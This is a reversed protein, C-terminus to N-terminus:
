FCCVHPYGHGLPNLKIKHFNDKRKQTLLIMDLLECLNTNRRFCSVTVNTVNEIQRNIDGFLYGCSM